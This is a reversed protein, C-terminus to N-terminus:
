NFFQLLQKYNKSGRKKLSLKNYIEKLEKGGIFGM